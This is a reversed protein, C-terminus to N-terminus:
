EKKELDHILHGQRERARAKEDEDAAVKAEKMIRQREKNDEMKDKFQQKFEHFEVTGALGSILIFLLVYSVVSVAVNAM